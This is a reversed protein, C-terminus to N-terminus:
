CKWTLSHPSSPSLAQIGSRFHYVCNQLSAQHYKHTEALKRTNRKNCLKHIKKTKSDYGM